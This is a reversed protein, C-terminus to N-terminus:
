EGPAIGREIAIGLDALVAEIEALRDSPTL